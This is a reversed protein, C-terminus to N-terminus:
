WSLLTFISLLIIYCWFIEVRNFRRGHYIFPWWWEWDSWKSWGSHSTIPKGVPKTEWSEWCHQSPTTVNPYPVEYYRCGRLVGYSFNLGFFLQGNVLVNSAVWILAGAMLMKIIRQHGSFVMVCYARWLFLATNWFHSVWLGSDLVVSWSCPNCAQLGTPILFQM